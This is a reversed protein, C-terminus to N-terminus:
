KSVMNKVVFSMQNCISYGKLDIIGMVKLYLSTGGMVLTLPM